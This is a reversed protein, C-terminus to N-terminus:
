CSLDGVLTLISKLLDINVENSVGIKIGNPLLLQLGATQNNLAPIDRKAEIFHLRNGKPRQNLKGHQYVFSAYNIGEQECYKSQSVGSTKWSESHSKWFDYGNVDKAEETM